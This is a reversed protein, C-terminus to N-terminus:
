EVDDRWYKLTGDDNRYEMKSELFCNILSLKIMEPKNSYEFELTKCIVQKEKEKNKTKYRLLYKDTNNGSIHVSKNWILEKIELFNLFNLVNIFETLTEHGFTKVAITKEGNVVVPDRKMESIKVKDKELEVIYSGSNMYDGGQNHRFYFEKPNNPIDESFGPSAIILLFIITILLSYIKKKM